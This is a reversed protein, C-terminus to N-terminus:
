AHYKLSEDILTLPITYDYHHIHWSSDAVGEGVVYLHELGMATVAAAWAAFNAGHQHSFASVRTGPRCFIINIFASGHPGAVNSASNFIRIQEDLTYDEPYIVEFGAALHRQEVEVANILKRTGPAARRGLYLRRGQAGPAWPSASLALKDLLRDRLYECAEVSTPSIEVMVPTDPHCAYPFFTPSPVLLLEDFKVGTGPLLPVIQRQGDALLELARYHGPPLGADVYLPVDAFEPLANLTQFRPLIEAFWHGYIRSSPSTFQVGRGARTIQADSFDLLLKERNRLQIFKEGIPVVTEGLPHRLNDYIAHSGDALVVNHGAFLLGNPVRAVYREELTAVGGKASFPRGIAAPADVAFTKAAAVVRYEAGVAQSYERASMLPYVAAPVGGGGPVAKRYEALAMATDDLAFLAEALQLRSTTHDPNRLLEQRSYEAAQRFDRMGLAIEALYSYLEPPVFGLAISQEYSAKAPAWKGLRRLANGLAYHAVGVGPGLQVAKLHAAASEELRGAMSLALGLYYHFQPNQPSSTAASTLLPIGDALRGSQCLLSGLQFCGDVHSPVKQLLHRYLSEAQALEGARQHQMASQLLSNEEISLPPM